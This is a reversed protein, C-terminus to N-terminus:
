VFVFLCFVGDAESVLYLSILSSSFQFSGGQQSARMTSCLAGSVAPPLVIM